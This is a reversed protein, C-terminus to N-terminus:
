ISRINSCYVFVGKGIVKLRSGEEFVVESLKECGCFADAGIERMSAPIKVSEVEAGWFWQNGIREVGDPIVVDKLKKLDWARMNEIM